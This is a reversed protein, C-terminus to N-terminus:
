SASTSTKFDQLSQLAIAELDDHLMWDLFNDKIRVEQANLSPSVANKM